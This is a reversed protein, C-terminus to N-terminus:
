PARGRVKARYANVAEEPADFAATGTFSDAWVEAAAVVSAMREVAVELEAIRRRQQELREADGRGRLAAHETRSRLEGTLRDVEARADELDTRAKVLLTHRADVEGVRVDLQRELNSIRERAAELDGRAADREAWAKRATQADARALELEHRLRNREEGNLISSTSWDNVLGTLREIERRAAELHDAMAALNNRTRAIGSANDALARGVDPVDDFQPAQGCSAAVQRELGNITASVAGPFRTGTPTTWPARTMRADDARAEAILREVEAPNYTTM